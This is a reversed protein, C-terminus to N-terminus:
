PREREILQVAVGHASDRPIRAVRSKPLVGAEAAAEITAHGALLKNRRDPHGSVVVGRGAGLKQMADVIIGVGRATHDRTNDPDPILDKIHGRDKQGKTKKM